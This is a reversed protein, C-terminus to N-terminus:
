AWRFRSGVGGTTGENCTAESQPRMRRKTGAILRRKSTDDCPVQVSSRQGGPEVQSDFVRCRATAAIDREPTCRSSGNKRPQRWLPVAALEVSLEHRACGQADTSTPLGASMESLTLTAAKKMITITTSELHAHQEADAVALELHLPFGHSTLQLARFLEAGSRAIGHQEKHTQAAGAHPRSGEAAAGFLPLPRQM